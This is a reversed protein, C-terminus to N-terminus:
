DVFSFHVSGKRFQTVEDREDTTAACFFLILRFIFWEDPWCIACVLECIYNCRHVREMENM